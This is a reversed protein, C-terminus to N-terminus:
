FMEGGVYAANPVEDVRRIEFYSLDSQTVGLVAADDFIYLVMGDALFDEVDVKKAEGFAVRYLNFNRKPKGAAGDTHFCTTLKLLFHAANFDFGHGFGQDSLELQIDGVQFHTMGHANAINRWGSVDFDEISAASWYSGNIDWAGETAGARCCFLGALLLERGEKM